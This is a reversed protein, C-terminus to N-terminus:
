KSVAQGSIGLKEGLQEQTLGAAKRLEVIKQSITKEM